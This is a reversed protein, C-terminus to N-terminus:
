LSKKEAVFCYSRTGEGVNTGPAAPENVLSARLFSLHHQHCFLKWEDPSFNSFGYASFPFAAMSEATRITTYFRGGPKLVRAIEEIHPEPDDWFYAVNISFVHDFSADPFPMKDSRCKVLMLRGDEIYERNLASASRLMDASCDIGTLKLASARLLQKEFFLGNGFGIELVSQQDTVHMEDLTFDYLFENAANM